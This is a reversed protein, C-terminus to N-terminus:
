QLRNMGKAVYVDQTGEQDIFLEITIASVGKTVGGFTKQDIEDARWIYHYPPLVLNPADLPVFGTHWAANSPPVALSDDYPPLVNGASDQNNPAQVQWCNNSPCAPNYEGLKTDWFTPDRRVQELLYNGIMIAQTHEAAKAEARTAAIMGSGFMLVAVTLIAMAMVVELITLARSQRTSNLVTM